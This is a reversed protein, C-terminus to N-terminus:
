VLVNTNIVPLTLNKLYTAIQRWDACVTYDGDSAGDIVDLENGDKLDVRGFLSVANAGASSGLIIIKSTTDLTAKFARHCILLLEAAGDAHDYDEVINVEGIGAGEYVYLLAGNPYDDAGAGTTLALARTSATYSIVTDDLQNAFTCLEIPAGDPLMVEVPVLCLDKAGKRKEHMNAPMVFAQSAAPVVTTEVVRYVAAAASDTGVILVGNSFSCKDGRTFTVGPDGPVYFIEKGSTHRLTQFGQTATASHVM